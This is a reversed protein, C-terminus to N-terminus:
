DKQTAAYLEPNTELVQVYAKAYTLKPNAARLAVVAKEIRDASDGEDGATVSGVPDLPAAQALLENASKLAAEIVECAGADAKRLARLAGGLKNADKPLNAYDAEVRAVVEALAKAEVQEALAAKLEASEATLRAEVEAREKRLAEAEARAQVVEAQVAALAAAQIELANPEMKSDRSNTTVINDRKELPMFTGRLAASIAMQAVTPDAGTLFRGVMGAAMARNKDKAKTDESGPDAKLRDIFGAALAESGSYFHDKGDTLMSRIDDASKGKRTYAGVMAEAYTDLVDAYRRLEEANGSLAGWPAHIMLVSTEPMEVEDGAMLILSAISMAVGDVTAVKKAPHARLANYIALGDAVSGGYSNLRINIQKTKPSLAQLQDVIGKATVGEEWWSSGINGYMVLDCHEASASAKLAMVNNLTM